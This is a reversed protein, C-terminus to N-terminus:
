ADDVIKTTLAGADPMMTKKANSASTFRKGTFPWMRRRVQRRGPGQNGKVGLVTVTVENGIM